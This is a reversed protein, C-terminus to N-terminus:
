LRLLLGLIDNGNSRRLDILAKTLSIHDELPNLDIGLWWIHDHIIWIHGGSWRANGMWQLTVLSRDRCNRGGDIRSCRSIAAQRSYSIWVRSM